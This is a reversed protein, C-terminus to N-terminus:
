VMRGTAPHADHNGGGLAIGKANIAVDWRPKRCSADGGRAIACQLKNAPFRYRPGRREEFGTGLGSICGGGELGIAARHIAPHSVSISIITTAPRSVVRSIFTNSSISIRETM